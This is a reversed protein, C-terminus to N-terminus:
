DMSNARDVSAGFRALLKFTIRHEPLVKLILM